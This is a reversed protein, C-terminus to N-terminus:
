VSSRPTPCGPPTATKHDRFTTGGRALLRETRPIIAPLLPNGSQGGAPILVINPRVSAAGGGCGSMLSSGAMASAVIAILAIAGLVIGRHNASVSWHRAGSCPDNMFVRARLCPLRPDAHPVAGTHRRPTRRVEAKTLPPASAIPHEDPAGGM